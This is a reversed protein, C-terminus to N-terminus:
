RTFYNVQWTQAIEQVRHEGYENKRYNSKKEYNSKGPGIEWKSTDTSTM